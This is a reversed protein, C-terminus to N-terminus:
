RPDEGPDPVQRNRNRIAGGLLRAAVYAVVLWAAAIAAIWLAVTM